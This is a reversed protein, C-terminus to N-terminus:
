LAQDAVPGDGGGVVRSRTCFRCYVACQDTLLLLARDPYRCILGPAVQHAEEGLPDALDGRAAESEAAHPVVQRRIPCSPDDRDCLGLYYPTIRLPLGQQEARRAGQLEDVSLRLRRSLEDVSTVADRLQRKWECDNSHARRLPFHALPSRDLTM